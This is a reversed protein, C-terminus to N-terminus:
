PTSTSHTPWSAVRSDQVADAVDDAPVHSQELRIVPATEAEGAREAEFRRRASRGTHRWYFYTGILVALALLGLAVSANRVDAGSQPGVLQEVAPEGDISTGVEIDTGAYVDGVLLLTIVGVVALVM